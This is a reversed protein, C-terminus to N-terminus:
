NEHEYNEMIGYNGQKKKNKLRFIVLITDISEITDWTRYQITTSYTPLLLKWNHGYM